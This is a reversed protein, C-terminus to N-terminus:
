TSYCAGDRQDPFEKPCNDDPMIPVPGTAPGGASMLTGGSPPASSSPTKPSTAPTRPASPTSIKPRSSSQATAGGASARTPPDSDPSTSTPLPDDDSDSSLDDDSTSSRDDDPNSTSDGESPLNECAVDDSDDDLNNPDSPDADLEDQAEQQTDFDSCNLDQAAVNHTGGWALWLLLTAFALIGVLALNPTTLRRQVAAWEVPLKDKAVGV